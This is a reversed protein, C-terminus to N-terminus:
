NLIEKLTEHYKEFERLNKHGGGEIIVFQDVPTLLPKLRLASSLPVVWDKTGHIILKQCQIHRLRDKNSFQYHPAILFSKVLPNFIGKLEDFPTELILLAPTFVTALHTAVASGLSRGYIILRAHPTNIQAWHLATEADAYFDKETPTGTSKGYGRYEIMLVDYGLPTFDESYIGWRQLNDANGHFYLILGKAPLPTKFFLANLTQGDPTPIFYETYPQKFTFTYDVALPAPQFILKDQFFYFGISLILYVFLAVSTIKLLKRM